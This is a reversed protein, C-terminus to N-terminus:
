GTIYELGDKENLGESVSRKSVRPIVYRINPHGCYIAVYKADYECIVINLYSKKINERYRIYYVLGSKIDEPKWNNKTNKNM